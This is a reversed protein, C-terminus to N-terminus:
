ICDNFFFPENFGVFFMGHKIGKTCVASFIDFLQKASKKGGRNKLATAPFLLWKLMTRYAIFLPPFFSCYFATLCIILSLLFFVSILFNLKSRNNWGVVDKNRKQRIIKRFSGRKNQSKAKRKKKSGPIQISTMDQLESPDALVDRVLERLQLVLVKGPAYPVQEHVALYRIAGECVPKNVGPASCHLPQERSFLPGETELSSHYIGFSPQHLAARGGRRRRRNTRM